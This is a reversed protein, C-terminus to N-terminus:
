AVTKELMLIKRLGTESNSMKEVVSGDLEVMVDLCWLEV